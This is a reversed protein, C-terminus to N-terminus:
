GRKKGKFKRILEKDEGIEKKLSKREKKYGKIDGKLHSVAESHLANM